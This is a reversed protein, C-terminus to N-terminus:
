FCSKILLHDILIQRMLSTKYSFGRGRAKLKSFPQTTMSKATTAGKTAAGLYQTNSESLDEARGLKILSVIDQWDQKIQEFYPSKDIEYIFADM